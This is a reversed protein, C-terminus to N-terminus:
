QCRLVVKVSLQCVPYSHSQWAVWATCRRYGHGWSGTRGGDCFLGRGKCSSASCPPLEGPVAPAAAQCLHSRHGCLGPAGPLAQLHPQQDDPVRGSGVPQQGAISAGDLRSEAAACCQLWLLETWCPMLLGQLRLLASGAYCVAKRHELLQVANYASGSLGDPCRDTSYACCRWTMTAVGVPLHNQQVECSCPHAALVAHCAVTLHCIAVEKLETRLPAESAGCRVQCPSQGAFCAKATLAAPGIQMFICLLSAQQFDSWDMLDSTHPSSARGLAAM